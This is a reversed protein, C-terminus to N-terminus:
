AALLGGPRKENIITSKVMAAIRQGLEGAQKDDARTSTSGDAMNVVVSVSTGGSGGKLSVPITRGDPLPVYAEPMSGEGFMAMQPSRAIGGSAYARLPMAGQGTMVGGNAFGFFGKVASFLGGGGAGFMGGMWGAIPGLVNRQLNIRILDKIISLAFSKFDAKGTTLFDTLADEAGKFANQFVSKVQEASNTADEVYQALFSKAGAGATRSEEYNKQLLAQRQERIADTERRFAEAKAGSLDKIKASVDADFKRADKLKEVEITTKGIYDAEQALTKLEEQQARIFERLADTAAKTKGAGESAGGPNFALQRKGSPAAASPKDKPAAEEPNWIEKLQRKLREVDEVANQQAIQRNIELSKGMKEYEAAAGAFNLTGAEKLVNVTGQIRLALDAFGTAMANIVVNAAFQLGVFATQLSRIVVVVSDIIVSNENFGEAMATLGPLVANAIKLGFNQLNKGMIGVQDNFADARAALEADIAYGFKEIEERGQNLFPILDAGSKGFIAMAIAAKAAGDEAGAFSDAIEGMLVDTPKLKGETDAISIGLAKFAAAQTSTGSQAEIISKNLKNIGGALGELSSGSNEAALKYKALMEVAVGTRQSIDNMNDALDIGKKVFAAVGAVAAAGIFTKLALAGSVLGRKMKDGATSVENINKALEKVASQGSVAASIKFVANQTSM